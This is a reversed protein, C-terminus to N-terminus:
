RPLTPSDPGGGAKEPIPELAGEAAAGKRDEQEVLILAKAAETFNPDVRLAARFAARAAEGQKALNLMIGMNHFNTADGPYLECLVRSYEAAEAHRKHAALTRVLNDLLPQSRPSLRVAEEFLGLAEAHRDSNLLLSGLNNKIEPLDPRLKGAETYHLHAKEFNWRKHELAGLRSHAQWASWNRELTHSWLTEEGSWVRAYGYTTVAFGGAVAAVVAGAAVRKALRGSNWLVAVGAAALAV